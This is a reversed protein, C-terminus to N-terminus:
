ENIAGYDSEEAPEPIPEPMALSLLAVLAMNWGCLRSLRRTSAIPDADDLEVETPTNVDKLTMIAEQLVPNALLERLGQSYVTNSRFEKITM